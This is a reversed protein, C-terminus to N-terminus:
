KDVSRIIIRGQILLTQLLTLSFATLEVSIDKEEHQATKQALAFVEDTFEDQIIRITKEQLTM